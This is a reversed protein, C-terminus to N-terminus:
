VQMRSIEQYAELLKNRVSVTLNMATSAREMAIMLDHYDVSQRGTMFDNGVQKANLQSDNVEKLVDMLTQAFDGDKEGGSAGVSPASGAQSALKQIASNQIGSLPNISM